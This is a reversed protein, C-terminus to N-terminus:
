DLMLEPLFTITEPFLTIFMAFLLMIAFFPLAARAIRGISDGTVGSLVFLNFGIPPTVMGIEIVIVLFIGFWLPDVGVSKVMPLLISTSLVVISLGDLFCGLLLFVFLLSLILLERPLNMDDVAQALARPFGNFGMSINLVAAGALIFFIMCNVKAAGLVSAAFTARSLKGQAAALALALGVGVAGAETATALGTYMALVMAVILFLVPLIGITERFSWNKVQEKAVDQVPRLLSYVGIYLSFLFALLFGPIIGAIFLRPVSVDAAAGYVILVVSPPILIGLTSATVVSGLILNRDYGLNRLETHAMRGVIATTATSSGSVSAFLASAAVNVHLLKGPLRHFIPALGRFLNAAIDTRFLIEGMLIFLPLPTLSWSTTSSWVQTAMVQGASADVLVLAVLGVIMLAVGVWIGGALLFLLGALLFAGEFLIPLKLSGM